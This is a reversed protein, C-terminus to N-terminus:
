QITHSSFLWQPPCNLVSDICLGWLFSIHPVCLSFLHVDKDNWKSNLTESKVTVWIDSWHYILTMGFVFWILWVFVLGLISFRSRFAVSCGGYQEAKFEIWLFVRPTHSCYLFIWQCNAFLFFVPSIFIIMVEMPCKPRYYGIRRGPQYSKRGLLIFACSCMKRSLWLGKRFVWDFHFDRWDKWRAVPEDKEKSTIVQTKDKIEM